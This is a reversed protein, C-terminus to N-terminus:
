GQGRTHALSVNAARPVQCVKEEASGIDHVGGTPIDLSSKCLPEVVHVPSVAALSCM